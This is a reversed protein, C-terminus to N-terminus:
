KSFWILPKEFFFNPILRGWYEAIPMYEFSAWDNWLSMHEAINLAANNVIVLVQFCGLHGEVSSYIFFINDM